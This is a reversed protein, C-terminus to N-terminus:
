RLKLTYLFILTHSKQFGPKRLTSLNESSTEVLRTSLTIKFTLFRLRKHIKDKSSVMLYREESNHM